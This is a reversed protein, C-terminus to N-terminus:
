AGARDVPGTRDVPVDAADGSPRCVTWCDLGTYHLGSCVLKSLIRLDHPLIERASGGEGVRATRALSGRAVARFHNRELRSVVSGAIAVPGEWHHRNVVEVTLMVSSM